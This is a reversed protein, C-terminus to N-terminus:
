LVHTLDLSDLYMRVASRYIDSKTYGTLKMAQKVGRFDVADLVFTERKTGIYDLPSGELVVDHDAFLVNDNDYAEGIADLEEATMGLMTNLKRELTAVM